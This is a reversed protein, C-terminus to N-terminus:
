PLNTPNVRGQGLRIGECIWITRLENLQRMFIRRVVNNFIWDTM